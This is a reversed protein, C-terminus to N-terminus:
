FTDLVYFSSVWLFLSFSPFPSIPLISKLTIWYSNKFILILANLFNSPWFSLVPLSYSIFIITLFSLELIWCVIISILIVTFLNLYCNSVTSCSDPLHSSLMSTSDHLSLLISFVCLLILSMLSCTFFDLIYSSYVWFSLSLSCSLSFPVSYLYASIIVSFKGFNRFFILGSKFLMVFGLYSTIFFVM